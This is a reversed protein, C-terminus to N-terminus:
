LAESPAWSAGPGHGVATIARRGEGEYGETAPIPQSPFTWTFNLNRGTANRFPFRILKLLNGDPFVTNWSVLPLFVEYQHM